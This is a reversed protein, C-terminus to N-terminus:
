EKDEKETQISHDLQADIGSIDQDQDVLSDAGEKLPVNGLTGAKCVQRERLRGYIINNLKQISVKFSRFPPVESIIFLSLSSKKINPDPRAV